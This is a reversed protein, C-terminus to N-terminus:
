VIAIFMLNRLIQDMVMKWARNQKRLNPEIMMDFSLLEMNLM